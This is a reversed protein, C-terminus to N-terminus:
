GKKYEGHQHPAQPKKKEQAQMKEAEHKHEHAKDEQKLTKPQESKQEKGVVPAEDKKLPAKMDAPKQAAQPVTAAKPAAPATAKPTTTAKAPPTVTVGKPVASGQLVVEVRSTQLTMRMRRGKPSLRPYIHKKGASVALITYEDGLGLVKGNAIASQLLKLVIKAAKEPYRGKRGGLERRHGLNRNHRKYLVAAEGDAVKELFALAWNTKRSRIRGCVETLDKYSANVGELRASACNDPIELSYGKM